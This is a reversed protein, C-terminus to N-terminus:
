EIKHKIKLQRIEDNINDYDSKNKMLTWKAHLTNIKIDSVYPTIKILDNRFKLNDSSVSTNLAYHYFLILILFSSSIYLVILYNKLKSVNEGIKILDTETKVIRQLEEKVNVKKELKNPKLEEKLTKIHLISKKVKKDINDKQM